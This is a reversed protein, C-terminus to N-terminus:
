SETADRRLWGAYHVLLGAMPHWLRVDFRFRGQPDVSESAITKPGLWVPMPLGLLTWRRIVYRLGTRDATLAMHITMPGFSERLLGDSRDGGRSLTSSFSCGAINRTWREAAPGATLTLQIAADEAAKPFGVMVAILRSLPNTGRTVACRGSFRSIATVSHLQQVPPPLEQWSGQLLFKFLSEAQPPPEHQGTTM